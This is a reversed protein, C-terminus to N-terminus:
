HQAVLLRSTCITCGNHVNWFLPLDVMCSHSPQQACEGGAGTRIVSPGAGNLVRAGSRLECRRLRRKM